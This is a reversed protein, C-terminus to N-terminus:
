VHAYIAAHFNTYNHFPPLQPRRWQRQGGAPSHTNVTSTVQHGQTGQFTAKLYFRNNAATSVSERLPLQWPKESLYTPPKLTNITMQKNM